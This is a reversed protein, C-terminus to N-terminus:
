TQDPIIHLIQPNPHSFHESNFLPWHLPLSTPHIHCKWWPYPLLCSLFPLYCWFALSQFKRRAQILSKHRNSISVWPLTKLLPFVTVSKYKPLMILGLTSFVWIPHLVTNLPKSDKLWVLVTLLFCLFSIHALLFHIHPSLWFAFSLIGLFKREQVCPFCASNVRRYWKQEEPVCTNGPWGM